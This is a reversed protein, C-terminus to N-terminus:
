ALGGCRVSAGSARVEIAIEIEAARRLAPGGLDDYLGKSARDSITIIGVHIQRPSKKVCLPSPAFACDGNPIIEFCRTPTPVICELRAVRKEEILFAGERLGKKGIRLM